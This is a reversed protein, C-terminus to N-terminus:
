ECALTGNVNKYKGCTGDAVSTQQGWQGQANQCEYFLRGNYKQVNRCSDRYSGQPVSDCTLNGNFNSLTGTCQSGSGLFLFTGQWNGDKKQCVANFTGAEWRFSPAQCTQKYSGDPFAQAYVPAVASAALVGVLTLALVALGNGKQITSM